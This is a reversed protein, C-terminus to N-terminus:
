TQTRDEEFFVPIARRDTVLCSEAKELLDPLWETIKGFM